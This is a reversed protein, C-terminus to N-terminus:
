NAVESLGLRGLHQPVAFAQKPLAPAISALKTTFVIRQRPADDDSTSMETAITFLM